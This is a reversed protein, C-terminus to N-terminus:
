VRVGSPELQELLNLCANRAVDWILGCVCKREVVSFELPEARGCGACRVSTHRASVMAVRKREREFANVLAMRLGSPNALVRYYGATSTRQDKRRRALGRLDLDELILTGYKRALWAALVRYTERRRAILKDRLNAEYELLHRDRKRWEELANYGEEDGEFRAARWKLALVALRTPSRWRPLHRRADGLWEPVEGTADIWQALVERHANFNRDRISRIDQTRRMGRLWENPLLVEREEGDEGVIYGARLGGKRRTWRLDVAVSPDGARVVWDREEKPMELIISVQWRIRAGLRRWTLHAQRILAEEPLPRHLYVRLEVWVPRRDQSRVRFRLLTRQQKRRKRRSDWTDPPVPDIVLQTNGGRVRSVPLGKPWRVSLKGRGPDFGHFRPADRRSRAANWAHVVDLYNGWYCDSLQYILKSVEYTERALERLDARVEARELAARRSARREEEADGQVYPALVVEAAARRTLELEVLNNWLQNRLRSQEVAEELGSTPPDCGYTYARVSCTRNGYPM